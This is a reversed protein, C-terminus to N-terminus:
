AAERTGTALALLNEHGGHRVTYSRLMFLMVPIAVDGYIRGLDRRLFSLVHAEEGRGTRMLIPVLYEDVQGSYLPARDVEAIGRREQAALRARVLERWTSSSARDWQKTAAIVESDDSVSSVIDDPTPIHHPILGLEEANRDVRLVVAHPRFEIGGPQWNPMHRKRFDSIAKEVCGRSLKATSGFVKMIWDGDPAREPAFITLPWSRTVVDEIEAAPTTAPGEAGWGIFVNMNRRLAEGLAISAMTGLQGPEGSQVFYADGSRRTFTRWEVLGEPRV